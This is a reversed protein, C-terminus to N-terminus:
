EEEEGGYTFVNPAPAPAPAPAPKPPIPQGRRGGSAKDLDADTLDDGTDATVGTQPDSSAALKQQSNTTSEASM